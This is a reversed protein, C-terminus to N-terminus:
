DLSGCVLNAPCCDCCCDDDDGDADADCAVCVVDDAGCLGCVNGCNPDNTCSGPCFCDGEAFKPMYIAAM